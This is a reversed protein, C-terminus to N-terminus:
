LLNIHLCMKFFIPSVVSPLQLIHFAMFSRAVDLYSQFELFTITKLCADGLVM